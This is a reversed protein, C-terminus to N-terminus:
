ALKASLRKRLRDALHEYPSYTNEFCRYVRFYAGIRKVLSEISNARKYNIKTMFCNAPERLKGAEAPMERLLSDILYRSDAVWSDVKSAHTLEGAHLRFSAKVEQLDCSGHRALLTLEAVVDQFLNHPSQFGGLQQLHATNFLTSCLYFATKGDFWAQIQDVPALGAAGNVYDVILEGDDDIVRTGSRVLGINVNGQTKEICKEIFDADILDDDHLLLFFVGTAENVCYNFNNNPGINEAHRKYRIRDDGFSAVLEDTNDSSCNDSVIIELNQYTQDVASKLAERLYGDARNYTPIGITVLPKNSM